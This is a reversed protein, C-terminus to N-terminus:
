RGEAMLGSLDLELGDLPDAAGASALQDAVFKELQEVAYRVNRGEGIRVKTFRGDSAMTELTRESISLMAAAERASVLLRQTAQTTM